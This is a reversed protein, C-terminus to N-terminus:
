TIGGTFIELVLHNWDPFDTASHRCSGGSDASHGGMELVVPDVLELFYLARDVFFYSAEM